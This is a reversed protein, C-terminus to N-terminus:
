VSPPVTPAPAPATGPQAPQGGIPFKMYSLVITGIGLCMLVVAVAKGTKKVVKIVKEEGVSNESGDASRVGGGAAVLGKEKAWRIWDKFPMVGMHPMREKCWKVYDKYLQGASKKGVEGYKSNVNRASTRSNIQADFDTM